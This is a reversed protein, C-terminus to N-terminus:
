LLLSQVRLPLDQAILPPNYPKAIAKSDKFELASILVFHTIVSLEPNIQITQTTISFDDVKIVAIENECCDKKEPLNQNEHFPCSPKENVVHCLQCPELKGFFSLSKLEGQCFHKQITFGSSTVIMLLALLVLATHKIREMGVRFIRLIGSNLNIYNLFLNICNQPSATM